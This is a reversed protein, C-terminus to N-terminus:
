CPQKIDVGIASLGLALAEVLTTGGGVHPDLILDGPRTFAQIAARAFAPLARQYKYFNHTLGRVPQTDARARSSRM